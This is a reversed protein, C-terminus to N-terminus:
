EGFIKISEKYVIFVGVILVIVLLLYVIIGNEM